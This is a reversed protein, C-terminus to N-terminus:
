EDDSRRARYTTGRYGCLAWCDGAPLRLIGEPPPRRLELFPITGVSLQAGLTGGEQEFWLGDSASLRVAPLPPGSPRTFALTAADGAWGTLEVLRENDARGDRLLLTGLRGEVSLEVGLSGDPGALEVRRGRLEDGAFLPAALAGLAVLAAAVSLGNCRRIFRRLRAASVPIPADDLRPPLYARRGGTRSRREGATTAALRGFSAAVLQQAPDGPSGSM